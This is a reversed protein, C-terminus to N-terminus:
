VCTVAGELAAIQLRLQPDRVQPRLFRDQRVPPGHEGREVVGVVRHGGVRLVLAARAVEVALHLVAAATALERAVAVAAPQAYM